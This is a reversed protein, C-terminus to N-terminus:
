QGGDRYPTCKVGQLQLRQVMPDLFSRWCRRFWATKGFRRVLIPSVAYYARIFGRGYWTKALTDDRYRRLTWVQPCDYSGYVATAIYCYGSDPQYVRPAPEPQGYEPDREQVVAARQQIDANIKKLYSRKLGIGRKWAEVALEEAAESDPFCEELEDGFQLLLSGISAIDALIQDRVVASHGTNRVDQEHNELEGWAARAQKKLLNFIYESITCITEDLSEEGEEQKRVMLLTPPLCEALLRLSRSREMGSDFSCYASFFIAQWITSDIALIQRYYNRARANSGYRQAERALLLLRELHESQDIKVVGVLNQVEERAYKTNCSQCVYLEGQQVLTHSGCRDCILAKMCAVEGAMKCSTKIFIAM